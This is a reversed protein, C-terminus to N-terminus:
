DSTYGEVRLELIAMDKQSLAAKFRQCSDESKMQETFDGKPAPLSHINSDEDEVCEELSVTQVRKSRTRYWKRVNLDWKEFDENCPTDLIVELMPGWGQKEITQKM